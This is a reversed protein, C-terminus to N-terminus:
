KGSWTDMMLIFFLFGEPPFFINSKLMITTLTMPAPENAKENRSYASVRFFFYCFVSVLVTSTGFNMFAPMIIRATVRREIKVKNPCRM